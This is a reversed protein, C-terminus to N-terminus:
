FLKGGKEGASKRPSRGTTSVTATRDPEEYFLDPRVENQPDEEVHHDPDIAHPRLVAYEVLAERDNRATQVIQRLDAYESRSELRQMVTMAPQHRFSIMTQDPNVGHYILHAFIHKLSLRARSDAMDYALVVEGIFDTGSVQSNMLGSHEELLRFTRTLQPDSNDRRISDSLSNFLRAILFTQRRLERGPIVPLAPPQFIGANFEGIKGPFEKEFIEILDHCRGRNANFYQILERLVSEYGQVQTNLYSFLLGLELNAMRYDYTADHAYRDVLHWLASHDHDSLEGLWWKHDRFVSVEFRLPFNWDLLRSLFREADSVRPLQLAQRHADNDGLLDRFERKAPAQTLQRVTEGADNQIDFDAGQKSVYHFFILLEISPMEEPRGVLCHALTNGNELGAVRHNIFLSLDGNNQTLLHQWDALTRCRLVSEFVRRDISRQVSVPASAEVMSVFVFLSVIIRMM